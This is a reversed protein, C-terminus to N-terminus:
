LDEKKDICLQIFQELPVSSEQTIVGYSYNYLALYDRVPKDNMHGIPIVKVAMTNLDIQVVIGRTQFLIILINQFLKKNVGNGYAIFRDITNDEITLLLNEQKNQLDVACIQGSDGSVLFVKDEAAFTATYPISGGNEDETKELPIETEQGEEIGYCYLCGEGQSLYWVNNNHCDMDSILHKVSFVRFSKKQLDILFCNKGNVEYAIWTNFNKKRYRYSGQVENQYWSEKILSHDDSRYRWIGNELCIPLFYLDEECIDASSIGGQVDMILVSQERSKLDFVHIKRESPSYFFLQDKYLICGTHLHARNLPEEMFPEMHVIENTDTDMQVLANFTDNSFYVYHDVIVFDLFSIFHKKDILDIM